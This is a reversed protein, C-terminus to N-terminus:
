RSEIGPILSDMISPSLVGTSSHSFSRSQHAPFENICFLGSFIRFLDYRGTQFCIRFVKEIEELFIWELSRGWKFFKDTIEDTRAGSSNINLMSEDVLNKIVDFCYFDNPHPRM